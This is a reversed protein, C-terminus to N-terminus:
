IPNNWRTVNFLIATHWITTSNGSCYLCWSHLSQKCLMQFVQSFPQTHSWDCQFALQSGKEVREKYGLWMHEWWHTSGCCKQISSVSDFRSTSAIHFAHCPLLLCVGPVLLSSPESGVLCSSQAWQKPSGCVAHIALLNGWCRSVFWWDKRVVLDWGGNYVWIM